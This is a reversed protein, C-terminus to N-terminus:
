WLGIAQAKTIVALTFSDRITGDAIAKYVEERHFWRFNAIEDTDVPHAVAEDAISVAFARTVTSLIGSNPYLVGLDIFNSPDPYLGTEEGLERVANDIDEGGDSFGRPLEWSFADVPYRYLEVIGITDNRIPMIVVGHRDFNEVVRNYRMQKGNFLTAKDWYLQILRNQPDEYVIEPIIQEPKARM